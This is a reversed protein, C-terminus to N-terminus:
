LMESWQFQATQITQKEIYATEEEMIQGISKNM